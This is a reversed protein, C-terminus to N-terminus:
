ERISGLRDPLAWWLRLTAGSKAEQALLQDEGPGWLYRNVIQPQYPEGPGDLDQIDMIVDTRDYVYFLSSGALTEVRRNYADYLFKREEHGRHGRHHIGTTKKSLGSLDRLARLCNEHCTRYHFTNGCLM